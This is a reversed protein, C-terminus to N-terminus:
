LSLSRFHQEAVVNEKLLFADAIFKYIQVSDPRLMLAKQLMKIAQDPQNKKILIAGYTLYFGAEGPKLYIAMRSNAEARDLLGKKMYLYSMRNFCIPIFTHPPHLHVARQFHELALDDNGTLLYYEGLAGYTMSKSTIQGSEHAKEAKVLEAHAEELRGSNLLLIALWQRPHHLRPSKEVNDQWLTMDDRLTDNWLYVSVSLVIVLFAMSTALFYFFFKRTFFFEMGRIFLTAVPVFLFMSPLYNRHEYLIELSLFSGEIAHNIFFFLIAYSFLPWRKAKVLAVVVLSFIILIAAATTWPDFLAKSIQFDHILTLRSTLPYFILSLYYLVVRPETLLREQMTFPRLEYNKMDATFDYFLLGAIGIICIPIVVIKIMKKANQETVGQLFFLEYLFISFGVMVANEKTGIALIACFICAIIHITARISTEAIRFRLYFYMSMIYFLAAMSAMRQVIYTVATVQVPNMAWLLASLLAITYAHKEYREKMLPLSLTRFIFLFLFVFSLSHIIFNVVHYGFVDLGGWYYNLSFSLYAIPRSLLGSNMIGLSIKKISDSTLEKIQISSNNVINDYDDFHWTCQFSNSYALFLLLLAICIGLCHQKWYSFRCNLVLHFDQKIYAM